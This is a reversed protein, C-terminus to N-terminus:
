LQWVLIIPCLMECQMKGQLQHLPQKERPVEGDGLNRNQARLKGAQGTTQTFSGM